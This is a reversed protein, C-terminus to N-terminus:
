ITMPMIQLKRWNRNKVMFPSQRNKAYEEHKNGNYLNRFM